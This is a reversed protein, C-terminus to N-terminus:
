NASRCWQTTCEPDRLIRFSLQFNVCIGMFLLIFIEGILCDIDHFTTSELLEQSCKTNGKKKDRPWTGVNANLFILNPSKTSFCQDSSFAKWQLEHAYACIWPHLSVSCSASKIEENQFLFFKLQPRCSCSKSAAPLHAHFGPVERLVSKFWGLRHIGASDRIDSGKMVILRLDPGKRSTPLFLSITWNSKGMAPSIASITGCQCCKETRTDTNWPRFIWSAKCRLFFSGIGFCVFSTLKSVQDFRGSFIQRWFPASQRAANSGLQWLHLYKLCANKLEKPRM